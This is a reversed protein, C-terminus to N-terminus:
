AREIGSQHERPQGPLDIVLPHGTPVAEVLIDRGTAPDRETHEDVPDSYGVVVGYGGHHDTYRVVTGVPVAEIPEAAQDEGAVDDVPETTKTKSTAM